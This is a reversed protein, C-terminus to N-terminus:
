VWSGGFTKSQDHAKWTGTRGSGEENEQKECRGGANTCSAFLTNFVASVRQRITWLPLSSALLIMSLLLIARTFLYLIAFSFIVNLRHARFSYLSVVFLVICYM